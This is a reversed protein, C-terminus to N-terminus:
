TDIGKCPNGNFYKYIINAVAHQDNTEDTVYNAAAKAKESANAVAIGLGAAKLMSIDNDYDGVAITEELTIGLYGCVTEMGAGKNAELPCYELLNDSSFFTNCRGSAVGRMALELSEIFSKEGRVLIKSINGSLQRFDHLFDVPIRVGKSYKLIDATDKEAYLKGGQYILLSAGNSNLGDILEFALGRELRYDTLVKMSVAEYILGGNFSIGLGEEPLGLAKEYALMSIYCRGSCLVVQIGKNRAFAVANKVEPSIQSKSNLLTNDLDSVLMRYKM